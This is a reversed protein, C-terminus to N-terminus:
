KLKSVSSPSFIFTFNAKDGTLVLPAKFLKFSSIFSITSGDTESDRSRYCPLKATNGAEKNLADYSGDGFLLLSKPPTLSPDNLARDYFMKAFWRIGIPDGM